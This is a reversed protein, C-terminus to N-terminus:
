PFNRQSLTSLALDWPLGPSAPWPLREGLSIVKEVASFGGQGM